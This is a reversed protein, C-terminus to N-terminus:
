AGQVVVTGKMFPHPTCIYAFTGATNFTASRFPRAPTTSAPTSAAAPPRPRTRRPDTTRGAEGHRGRERDRHRPLLLLGQDDRQGLRRGARDPAGRSRRRRGLWPGPAAPAPEPAPAAPAPAAPAAPAPAVPAPAPAAPASPAPTPAPAPPATHRGSGHTTPAAADPHSAAARRGRAAVFPLLSLRSWPSSAGCLLSLHRMRHRLGLPQASVSSATSPRTSRATTSASSSSAADAPGGASTDEVAAVYSRSTVAGGCCSPRASAVFRPRGVRARSGDGCETEAVQPFGRPWWTVATTGTSRSACAPWSGAPACGTRRPAPRAALPPLPLRLGRSLRPDASATGGVPGAGSASAAIGM